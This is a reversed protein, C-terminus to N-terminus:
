NTNADASIGLDSIEIGMREVGKVFSESPNIIRFGLSDRTWTKAASLLAALCPAGIHEVASADFEIPKNRQSKLVGFLKFGYEFGCQAALKVPKPSITNM